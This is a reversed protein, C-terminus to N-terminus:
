STLPRSFCTRYKSSHPLSLLTLSGKLVYSTINLPKALSFYVKGSNLCVCSGLLNLEAQGTFDPGPKGLVMQSRFVTNSEIKAKNKKIDFLTFFISTHKRWEPLANKKGVGKGLLRGATKWTLINWTNKIDKIRQISYDKKEEVTNPKYM